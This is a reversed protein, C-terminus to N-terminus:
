AGRRSQPYLAEGAAALKELWMEKLVRLDAAPDYAPDDRPELRDLVEFAFGEPGRESWDRQLERDPHSGHELQFRQRNLTGPLNVSAGVLSKGAAVNRVRFIGAPRPTQKYERTAAKRDLESM